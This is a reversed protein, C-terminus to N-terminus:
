GNRPHSVFALYRGWNKINNKKNIRRKNTRRKNTRRKSLHRKNTRRAGGKMEPYSIAGAPLHGTIIPTSYGSVPSPNLSNGGCQKKTKRYTPM